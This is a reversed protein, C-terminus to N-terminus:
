GGESGSQEADPVGAQPVARPAFLPGLLGLLFLPHLHPHSGSLASLSSIRFSFNCVSGGSVGFLWLLELFFAPRPPTM